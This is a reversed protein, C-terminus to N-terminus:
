SKKAKEAWKILFDEAEDPGFSEVLWKQAKEKGHLKVQRDYHSKALRYRRDEPTSYLAWSAAAGKKGIKSREEFLIQKRQEETITPSPNMYGVMYSRVSFILIGQM